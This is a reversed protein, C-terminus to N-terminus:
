EFPEPIVSLFVAHTDVVVIVPNRNPNVAVDVDALQDCEQKM